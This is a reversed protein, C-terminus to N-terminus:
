TIWPGSAPAHQLLAERLRGRSVDERRKRIAEKLVDHRKGLLHLTTIVKIQKALPSKLDDRLTEVVEKEVKDEVDMHEAYANTDDRVSQMRRGQQDAALEANGAAKLNDRINQLRRKQKLMRAEEKEVCTGEVLEGDDPDSHSARYENRTM